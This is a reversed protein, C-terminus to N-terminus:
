VPVVTSEVRKERVKIWRMYAVIRAQQTAIKWLHLRRRVVRQRLAHTMIDRIVEAARERAFGVGGHTMMFGIPVYSRGRALEKDVEQETADWQRQAEQSALALRFTRGCLEFEAGTTAATYGGTGERTGGDRGGGRSCSSSSSPPPPGGGDRGERGGGAWGGDRSRLAKELDASRDHSRIGGGVSRISGERSGVNDGGNSNFRTENGISTLTVRRPRMNDEYPSKGVEGASAPRPRREGGGRTGGSGEVGAAREVQRVREVEWRLRLASSVISTSLPPPKLWPKPAGEKEQWVLEELPTLAAGPPFGDGEM